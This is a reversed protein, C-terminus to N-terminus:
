EEPHKYDIYSVYSLGGTVFAIAILDIRKQIIASIVSILCVGTFIVCVCLNLTKM